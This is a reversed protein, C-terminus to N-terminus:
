QRTVTLTYAAQTAPAEHDVVIYFFGGVPATFAIPAGASAFGNGACIPTTPSVTCGALLYARVGTIEILIQDGAALLIRYAHDAGNMVFGGCM